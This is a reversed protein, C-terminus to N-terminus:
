LNFYDYLFRSAIIILFIIITTIVPESCECDESTDSDSDSIEQVAPSHMIPSNQERIPVGGDETRSTQCNVDVCDRQVVTCDGDRCNTTTSTSTSSSGGLFGEILSNHINHNKDNSIM